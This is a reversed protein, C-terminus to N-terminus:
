KVNQLQFLVDTIPNSGHVNQGTLPSDKLEYVVLWDKIRGVRDNERKEYVKSLYRGWFESVSPRSAVERPLVSPFGATSYLQFANLFIHTVGLAKLKAHLEDATGSDRAAVWFPNNDFTTAAIFDRDCYYARSEGLFAVRSNEPLSRNIFEMAAFYPQGYGTHATELYENQSKEGTLVTWKGSLGPTGDLYVAILNSASIALTLSMIARRTWPPLQLKSFGIALVASGILLTPILFRVIDSTMGWALLGIGAIWSAARVAAPVPVAKKIADRYFLVSAPVLILYALSIRYNVFQDTTAKWPLLLFGKWGAVSGFTRILDRSHADGLFMDWHAPSASGIHTHFFPYVPNGYFLLNKLAWPLFMLGAGAAMWLADSISEGARRRLWAYIVVIAAGLPFATYKTGLSLGIFVGTFIAWRRTQNPDTAQIAHSVAILALASYFATGLEVGSQWGATLVVPSLSFILIGLIASDKSSYRRIWAYLALATAWGFSCHLLVALHEKSLALSLGYLMEMGFPFGSYLNHPTPVIHGRLLYLKPLALHYVLSDFFIEPAASALLNLAFAACILVLAAHSLYDLRSQGGPIVPDAYEAGGEQPRLWGRYIVAAACLAAVGFLGYRLHAENWSGALGMGLMALSMLGAGLGSALLRHELTSAGQLSIRRLVGDGIAWSVFWFIGVLLLDKALGSSLIHGGYSLFDLFSAIYALKPTRPGLHHGYFFIFVLGLAWAALLIAPLVPVPTASPGPPSPRRQKKDQKLFQGM